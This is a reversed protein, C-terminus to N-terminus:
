FTESLSAVDESYVNRSFLFIALVPTARPEEGRGEGEVRSFDIAPKAPLGYDNEAATM